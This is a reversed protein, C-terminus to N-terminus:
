NWPCAEMEHADSRPELTEPVPDSTSAQGPGSQARSSDLLEAVHQRYVARARITGRAAPHVLGLHAIGARTLAAQVRRGLAVICAGVLVLSRIAQIANEGPARDTPEDHFLNLFVARAPDIGAYELADRLTRACLRGDTWHAGLQVAKPSRREGVFIFLRTPEDAEVTRRAGTGLREASVVGATPLLVGDQAQCKAAGHRANGRRNRGPRTM